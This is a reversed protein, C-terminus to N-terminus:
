GGKDRSLLQSGEWKRGQRRGPEPYVARETAPTFLSERNFSLRCLERGARWETDQRGVREARNVDSAFVVITNDALGLSDLMSLLRGFERDVGTVQAFYYPASTAKQITTDANDRILLEGLTKDKYLNYDEEM